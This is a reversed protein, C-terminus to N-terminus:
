DLRCADGELVGTEHEPAGFDVVYTRIGARGLAAVASLAPEIDYVESTVMLPAILLAVPADTAECTAYRRLRHHAGQDVVEYPAGYPEGLRGFRVLELVNASSAKARRLFRSGLGM